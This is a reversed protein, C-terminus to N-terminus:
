AKFYWKKILPVIELIVLFGTELFTSTDHFIRFNEKKNDDRDRDEEDKNHGAFGAV